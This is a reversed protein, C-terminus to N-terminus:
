NDEKEISEKIDSNYEYLCKTYNKYGNKFFNYTDTFYKNFYENNITFDYSYSKPQKIDYFLVFTNFALKYTHFIDEYKLDGRITKDIINLYTEMSKYSKDEKNLNEVIKFIVNVNGQEKGPDLDSFKVPDFKYMEDYYNITFRKTKILNIIYNKVDMKNFLKEFDDYVEVLKPLEYNKREVLNCYFLSINIRNLSIERRHYLELKYMPPILIENETKHSSLQGMYLVKAGDPIKIILIIHFGKSTYLLGGSFALAININLSTSLFGQADDDLKYDKINEVNRGRYVFFSGNSNKPNKKDVILNNLNNYYLDLVNLKKYIGFYLFRYMNKIFTNSDCDYNQILEYKKNLGKLNFLQSIDAKRNPGTLLGANLKSYCGIIIKHDNTISDSHLYNYQSRLYGVTPMIYKFLKYILPKLEYLCEWNNQEYCLRIKKIDILFNYMIYIHKNIFSIDLDFGFNSIDNQYFNYYPVDYDMELYGHKDKCDILFGEKIENKFENKFKELEDEYSVLKNSSSPPSPVPPKKSKEDKPIPPIKPREETM